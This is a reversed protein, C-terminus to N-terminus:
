AVGSNVVGFTIPVGQLVVNSADLAEATFTFTQGLGTITHGGPTIRISAAPPSVTVDTHGNAGGPATATITATGNGTATVVGSTPDVTAVNTNNSSWTYAVNPVVANANGPDRTEAILQTTGGITTITPNPATVAVMAGRVGRL